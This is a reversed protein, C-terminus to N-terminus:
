SPTRTTAGTQPRCLVHVVDGPFAKTGSTGTECVKNGYFRKWLPTLAPSHVAESNYGARTVKSSIRESLSDRSWGWSIVRTRVM